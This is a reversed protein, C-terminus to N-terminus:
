KIAGIKSEIINIAERLIGEPTGSADIVHIRHPFKGAVDLYAQRLKEHYIGDANDFRDPRDEGGDNVHDNERRKLRNLVVSTPCDLLLTVEPDFDFASNKIVTEVKEEPIGPLIGQYVRTSDYYRDCIIWKGSMVAPRLKGEIHQVRATSVLFLEALPFLPDDKFPRKFLQRLFDATPTGGPEYSQIFSAGKETFEKVLGEILLTKGVGEGGEITIFKKM